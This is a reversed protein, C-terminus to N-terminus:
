VIITLLIKCQIKDIKDLPSLDDDISNIFLSHTKINKIKNVDCSSLKYYQDIDKYKSKNMKIILDDEVEKLSSWTQYKDVGIKNFVVPNNKVRIMFNSVLYRMALSSIKRNTEELNYPNSISVFGKVNNCSDKVYSLLNTLILSGLSIGILYIECKPNNDIIYFITEAIDEFSGANYMKPDSLPTDNIGKNQISIIQDFFENNISSFYEITERIQPTESGGLVGHLLVLIKENSYKFNNIVEKSIVTNNKNDKYNNSQKSKSNKRSKILEGKYISKKNVINLDVNSKNNSIININTNNNNINDEDFDDNDSLSENGQRRYQITNSRKCFRLVSKKNIFTARQLLRKKIPVQFVAHDLGIISGTSLTLLERKLSISPRKKFEHYIAQFLKYFLYFTPKYPINQLKNILNINTENTIIKTCVKYSSYIMLTFACVSGSICYIAIHSM